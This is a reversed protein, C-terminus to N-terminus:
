TFTTTLLTEGTKTFATAPIAELVQQVIITGDNNIKVVVYKWGFSSVIDGVNLQQGRSDVVM